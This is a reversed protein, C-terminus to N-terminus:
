KREGTSASWGLARLQFRLAAPQLGGRRYVINITAVEALSGGVEASHNCHTLYVVEALKLRSGGFRTNMNILYKSM